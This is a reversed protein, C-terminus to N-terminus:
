DERYPGYMSEEEWIDQAIGRLTDLSSYLWYNAAEINSLMSWGHQKLTKAAELVSVSSGDSSEIVGASGSNYLDGYKHLNCVFSFFNGHSLLKNLTELYMGVNDKSEFPAGIECGDAMAKYHRLMNVAKLSLGTEQQIDTATKTPLDYEGLLYGLECGFLSCMKLLHDLPPLVEGREWKRITTRSTCDLGLAVALSGQSYGNSGNFPNCRAQRIREGIAKANYNM